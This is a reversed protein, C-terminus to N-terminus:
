SNASVAQGSELPPGPRRLRAPLASFLAEGPGQQYYGAAWLIFDLDAARLLPTKDLVADVPKLREPDQDSQELLKVIMGLRRSRGFPVLVRKGAAPVLQDSGVPPLYDFLKSLPAAVAVRLVLLTGASM